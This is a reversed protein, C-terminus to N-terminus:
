FSSSCARTRIAQRIVRWRSWLSFAVVASCTFMPGSLPEPVTTLELNDMRFTGNGTGDSFGTWRFTVEGANEIADIASLNWSKRYFTADPTYQDFGILTFGQGPLAYEFRSSIPGFVTSRSHYSLVLDTLGTTDVSFLIENGLGNVGSDFAGAFGELHLEAQILLHLEPKDVLLLM